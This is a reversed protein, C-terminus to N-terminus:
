WLDLTLLGVCGVMFLIAAGLISMAIWFGSPDSGRRYIGGGHHIVGRKLCHWWLWGFGGVIAWMVLVPGIM